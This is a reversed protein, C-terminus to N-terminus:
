ERDTLSVLNGTDYSEQPWCFEDADEVASKTMNESVSVEAPFMPADRRPRLRRM